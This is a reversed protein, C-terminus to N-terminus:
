QHQEQMKLYYRGSRRIVEGSKMLRHLENGVRTNFPTKGTYTAASGRVKMEEAVKAPKMGKPADRLVTRVAAAFGTSTPHHVTKAIDTAVPAGVMNQPAFLGNGIKVDDLEVRVLSLQGKSEAVLPLLARRMMGVAEKRAELHRVQEDLREIEQDYTAIQQAVMDAALKNTQPNQTNM